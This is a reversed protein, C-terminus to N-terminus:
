NSFPNLILIIDIGQDIGSRCREYCPYMKNLTKIDLDSMQKNIPILSYKNPGDIKHMVPDNYFGNLNSDYHM